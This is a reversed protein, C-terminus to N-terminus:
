KYAIGEVNVHLVWYDYNTREDDCVTPFWDFGDSECIFNTEAFPPQDPALDTVVKIYEDDVNVMKVEKTENNEWLFTYKADSISVQDNGIPMIRGTDGSVINGEREFASAIIISGMFLGFASGIIGITFLMENNWKDSAFIFIFGFLICFPIWILLFWM